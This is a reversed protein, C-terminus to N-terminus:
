QCILLQRHTHTDKRAQNRASPQLVPQLYCIVSLGPGRSGFRVCTWLGSSMTWWRAYRQCVRQCQDDDRVGTPLVLCKKTNWMHALMYITQVYCIIWMRPRKKVFCRFDNLWRWMQQCICNICPMYECDLGKTSLFVRFQENNMAYRNFLCM